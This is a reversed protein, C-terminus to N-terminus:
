SRQASRMMVLGVAGFVLDALWAALYPPLAGNHGFAQGARLVAYYLFAIAVSLGFGLAASQMRLRTALSAGILVVILNILPYSLKMHLDVLYNAVRAGSARLREVYHSLELFDMEGPNRTEKAFDVPREGLGEIAMRTFPRAEEKGRHFSRVVGSVFVWRRGDWTAEAADIRRRLTGAQFEQVSVEHMRQENVLYLRMYFIRGGEGLYTVDARETVDEQRRGQIQREYIADRESNARPVVREGLVFVLAVSALAVGFVPRLIRLLSVGASRMATLEGFKNLQGLAMFTALLLAVPLIQVVIEPTRYLYFRVVLSMPARHDLFVDIKEFLDVVMFIVVFGILGLALYGVFERLVYRDLIRV